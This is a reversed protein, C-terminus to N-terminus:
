FCSSDADAQFGALYNIINGFLPVSHLSLFSHSIKQAGISVSKWTVNNPLFLLSQFLTLLIYCKTHFPLFNLIYICIQMHVSQFFCLLNTFHTQTPVRHTALLFSISKESYLLKIYKQVM